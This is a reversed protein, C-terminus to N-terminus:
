VAPGVAEFVLVTSGDQHEIQFAYCGPTKLRVYGPRDRWDTARPDPPITIENRLPEGQTGDFAVPSDGDLRRGKIVVPDRLGPAVFWLVKAGGWGSGAFLTGPRAGTYELVPGMVPRAPGDGLTDGGRATPRTVTRTVPCDGGPTVSPAAVQDPACGNLLLALVLATARVARSM